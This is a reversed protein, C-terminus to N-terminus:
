LCGCRPQPWTPRGEDRPLEHLDVYGEIVFDAQRGFAQRLCANPLVTKLEPL